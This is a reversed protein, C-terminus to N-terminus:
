LIGITRLIVNNVKRVDFKEEVIHRSKEGMVTVLDPNTIFKEMAATLKEVNKIPVLFGNVGEVVTERCGPADTTIVARGMSMAELTSRPVGEAYSPLVYVSSNKIIARVDDTKGLYEMGSTQQLLKAFDEKSIATPNTDLDGVFLFRSAPYKKKIIEAAAFYEYIGKDAIIRAIMLFVPFNVQPLPALAYYDIDLGEGNIVVIKDKAVIKNEASFYRCIDPNLAFIKQNFRLAIKYLWIVFKRLVRIKENNGIFVSGFGTIFSFIKPVRALKGALSGYITPKITYNLLITPKEKRLLRYFSFFSYCDKFVNIQSRQLELRVFRIGQNNLLTITNADLDPACAIVDYGHNKLDMLLSLRFLVLSPTYNTFLLVKERSTSSVLKDELLISKLAFDM